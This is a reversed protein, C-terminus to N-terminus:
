LLQRADAFIRRDRRTPLLRAVEDPPMLKVAQSEFGMAAPSGGVRVALYFRMINHNTRYDRILRVLRLQLGTEEFGEKLAAAQATLGHDVGGHAFTLTLNNPFGNTPQVVWFRGDPEVVVVGARPRRSTGGDFPRGADLAPDQGAVELWGRLTTPASRWPAMSVGHLSDPVPGDPIFIATARPDTWTSPHSAESPNRIEVVGGHEDRRPHILAAPRQAPAARSRLLMAAAEDVARRREEATLLDTPAATGTPASDVLRVLAQTRAELMDAITDRDQVQLLPAVADVYNGWGGHADRLAVIDSVQRAFDPVDFVSQYGAAHALPSYAKNRPYDFFNIAEPMDHLGAPDKRKERSRWLLAAGNDKREIRGDATVRMEAPVGWHKVLLVAALSDFVAAALERTLERDALAERGGEPVPALLVAESGYPLVSSNASAHGLDAFLRDVLRHAHAQNPDRYFTVERLAGDTRYLGGRPESRRIDLPIGLDPLSPASATIEPEVVWAGSQPVVVRSLEALQPPRLGLQDAAQNPDGIVPRDQFDRAFSLPVATTTLSEVFSLPVEFRKIGVSQGSKEQQERAAFFDRARQESGFNLWLTQGSTRSDFPINVMGDAGFQIRENVASEVRYVSVPDTLVARGHEGWERGDAALVSTGLEDGLARLLPHLRDDLPPWTLVSVLQGPAYRGSARIAQAVQAASWSMLEERHANIVFAGPMALFRAAKKDHDGFIELDAESRAQLGSWDLKVRQGDRPHALPASMDVQLAPEALGGTPHFLAWESQELSGLPARVHVGMRHAIQQALSHEGAGAYPIPLALSSGPTYLTATLGFRHGLHNVFGDVTVIRKRSIRVTPISLEPSDLAAVAFEQPPAGVRVRPLNAVSPPGEPLFSLDVGRLPADPGWPFRGLVTPATPAKKAPAPLELPADPMLSSWSPVFLLASPAQPEGITIRMGGRGGERPRDRPGIRLSGDIRGLVIAPADLRGATQLFSRLLPTLLRRQEIHGHSGSIAVSWPHMPEIRAVDVRAKVSPLVGADLIPIDALQLGHEQAATGIRRVQERVWDLREPPVDRFVDLFADYLDPGASTSPAVSPADPAPPSLQTTARALAPRYLAAFLPV